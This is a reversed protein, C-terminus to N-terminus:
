REAKRVLSTGIIFLVSVLGAGVSLEFAAAYRAEFLFFILAIVASGLGIATVAWILQKALLVCLATTVFALCLLIILVTAFTLPVEKQYFIFRM